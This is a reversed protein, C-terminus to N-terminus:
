VDTGYDGDIEEPRRGLLHAVNEAVVDRILAPLEEESARLELPRRYLVIRAPQGLEAPFLRGLAVGQEWPAPDSPPVTEIGFELKGWRKGWRRDLREAADRVHSAFVDARTAYGPADYPLM